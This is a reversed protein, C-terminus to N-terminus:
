KLISDIISAEALWRHDSSKSGILYVGSLRALINTQEKIFLPPLFSTLCKGNEPVVKINKSM